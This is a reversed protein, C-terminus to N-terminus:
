QTNGTLIEVVAEAVPSAGARAVIVGYENATSKATGADLILSAKTRSPKVICDSALLDGTNYEVTLAASKAQQVQADTLRKNTTATAASAIDKITQSTVSSGVASFYKKSAVSVIKAGKGFTVSTEVLGQENSHKAVNEESWGYFADMNSNDAYYYTYLDDMGTHKTNEFVINGSGAYIYVVNSKSGGVVTLNTFYYDNACSYSGKPTTIKDAADASTGKIVIPLKSGDERFITTQGFLLYSSRGNAADAEVKASEDTGSFTIELVDDKEWTDRSAYNLCEGISNGHSGVEYTTTSAPIRTDSAGAGTFLMGFACACLLVAAVLVSWLKANRM